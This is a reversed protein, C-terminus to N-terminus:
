QGACVQSEERLRLSTDPAASPRSGDATPSEPRHRTPPATRSSRCITSFRNSPAYGVGEQSEVGLPLQRTIAVSVGPVRGPQDGVVIRRRLAHLAHSSAGESWARLSYTGAPVNRINVHGARDSVGFYPSDVTLIVAEMQPHMSCFVHIVGPREFRLTRHTGPRQYGFHFRTSGVSSFASHVWRDENHFEVISGVPIVLLHPRFGKDHEVLHYYRPSDSGTTTSIPDVPVLWVVVGSSEKLRTGAKADLLSVRISVAFFQAANGTPEIAESRVAMGALAGVFAIGLTVKTAAGRLLVLKM